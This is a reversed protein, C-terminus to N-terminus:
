VLSMADEVISDLEQNLGELRTRLKDIEKEAKLRKAQIAAVKRALTRPTVGGSRAAKRRQARTRRSVM